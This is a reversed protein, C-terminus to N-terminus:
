FKNLVNFLESLGAKVGDRMGSNSCYKQNYLLKETRKVNAQSFFFLNWIINLHCHCSAFDNQLYSDFRFANNNMNRLTYCCCCSNVEALFIM